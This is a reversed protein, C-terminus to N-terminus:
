QLSGSAQAATAPATVVFATRERWLTKVNMGNRQVLSQEQVMREGLRLRGTVFFYRSTTSHEGERPVVDSRVHPTVDALHKFPKLAREEVLRQAQARDLGALAAVLVEL